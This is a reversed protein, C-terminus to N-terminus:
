GAFKKAMKKANLWMKKEFGGKSHHTAENDVIRRM